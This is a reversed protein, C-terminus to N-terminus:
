MDRHTHMYMKFKCLPESASFNMLSKGFDIEIQQKGIKSITIVEPL